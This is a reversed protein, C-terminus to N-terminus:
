MNHVEQLVCCIMRLPSRTHSATCPQKILTNTPFFDDRGIRRYGMLWLTPCSISYIYMHLSTALVHLVQCLFLLWRFLYVNECIYAVPAINREFKNFHLLLTLQLLLLSQCPSHDFWILHVARRAPTWPGEATPFAGCLGATGQGAWSAKGTSVTQHWKFSSNVGTSGESM